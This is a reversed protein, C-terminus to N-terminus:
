PVNRYPWIYLRGLGQASGNRLDISRSGTVSELKLVEGIRVDYAKNSKAVVQGRMNTVVAADFYRLTEFRDLETQLDGYDGHDLAAAISQVLVGQSQEQLRQAESALTQSRRWQPYWLGSAAVALVCSGLLVWWGRRSAPMTGEGAPRGEEAAPAEKDPHLVQDNAAVPQGVAEDDPTVTQGTRRIRADCLKRVLAMDADSPAYRATRYWVEAVLVRRGDVHWGFAWRQPTLQRAVTEGPPKLRVIIVMAHAFGIEHDAEQVSGVETISWSSECTMSEADLLSAHVAALGQPGFALAVDDHSVTAALPTSRASNVTADAAHRRDIM